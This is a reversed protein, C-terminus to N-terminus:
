NLLNLYIWVTKALAAFLEQVSVSMRKKKGTAKQHISDFDFYYCM